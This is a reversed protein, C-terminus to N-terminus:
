HPVTGDANGSLASETRASWMRVTRDVSGSALLEGDPSFALAMIGDTHGRLALVEQGSALDWLKIETDWGATALRHGEPSFALAAPRGRHGQLRHVIEGTSAEWVLVEGEDPRDAQLRGAASAVLKDGPSVAVGSVPLTHSAFVRLCKGSVTDWVRFAQDHSASYLKTGDSNYSLSSIRQTHGMLKLRVAGTRGSWILIETPGSANFTASAIEDGRPAFVACAVPSEHQSFVLQKAVTQANWVVVHHDAGASVL